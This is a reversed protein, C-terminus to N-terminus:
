PGKFLNNIRFPEIHFNVAQVPSNVGELTVYHPMLDQNPFLNPTTYTQINSCSLVGVDIRLVQHVFGGLPFNSQQHRHQQLEPRCHRSCWCHDHLCKMLTVKILSLVSSLPWPLLSRTELETQPKNRNAQESRSVSPYTQWQEACGSVIHETACCNEGNFGNWGESSFSSPPQSGSIRAWRVANNAGVFGACLSISLTATFKNQISCRLPIPGEAFNFNRNRDQCAAIM